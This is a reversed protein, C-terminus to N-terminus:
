RRGERDLSLVGRLKAARTGDARPRPQKSLPGRLYRARWAAGAERQADGARPASEFKCSARRTLHDNQNTRNKTRLSFVDGSNDRWAMPWGLECGVPRQLTPLERRRLRPPLGSLRAAISPLSRPRHSDPPSASSRTGCRRTDLEWRTWGFIARSVAGNPVSCSSVLNLMPGGFRIASALLFSACPM